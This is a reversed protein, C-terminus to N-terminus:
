YNVEKFDAVNVNYSIPTGEWTLNYVYRQGEKWDISVPIFVTSPQTQENSNKQIMRATVKIYAGDNASESSCAKVKQPILYMARTIDISEPSNAGNFNPNSVNIVTGHGSADPAGLRESLNTLIYSKSAANSDLIWKGMGEASATHLSSTTNKPFLYTGIGKIGGVEISIIEIDELGPHNNQATFCIQSLAHRFNLEVNGKGSSNQNVDKAVSYMLDNQKTVDSNVKFNKFMPVDGSMDFSHPVDDIACADMDNHEIFAYFTLSTHASSKASPWFRKHTSNWSFGGDPSSMEDIEGGYYNSSGQFATVKFRNPRSNTSYSDAARTMNPTQVNFTIANDPETAIENIEEDASCATLSFAILALASLKIDTLEM